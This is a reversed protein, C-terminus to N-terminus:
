ASNISRSIHRNPDTTAPNDLCTIYPLLDRDDHQATALLTGTLSKDVRKQAAIWQTQQQKEDNKSTDIVTVAHTSATSTEDTSKDKEDTEDPMKAEVEEVREGGSTSEEDGTTSLSDAVAAFMDYSRPDLAYAPDMGTRHARPLKSNASRTIAAILLPPQPQSTPLPQQSSQSELLGPLRSLADANGNQSGPRQVITFNHGQLQLAVRTLRSSPNKAQLLWQLAAHDTYITFPHRYLYHHFLNVAWKVALLERDTVTYNRQAHNLTKSAYYIPHELYAPETLIPATATTQPTTGEKHPPM